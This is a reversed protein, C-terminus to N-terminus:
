VKNETLLKISYKESLKKDIITLIDTDKLTGITKTIRNKSVTRIQHIMIYSDEQIVEYDNHYIPIMMDKISSPYDNINKYKKISTLPIVTVIKDYDAIVIGSHTYSLEHGINTVGFDVSLVDGKTFNTYLYTNKNKGFYRAEDKLNGYIGFDNWIGQWLIFKISEEITTNNIIEKINSLIKELEDIVIQNSNAVNNINRKDNLILFLDYTNIKDM